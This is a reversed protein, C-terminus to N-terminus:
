EDGNELFQMIDTGKKGISTPPHEVRVEHVLTLTWKQVVM